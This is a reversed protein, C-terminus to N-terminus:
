LLEESDYGMGLGPRRTDRQGRGPSWQGLGKVVQGIGTGVHDQGEQCDAGELRMGGSGEGWGGGGFRFGSM